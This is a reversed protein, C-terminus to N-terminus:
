CWPFFIWVNNGFAIYLITVIHYIPWETNKILYTWSLLWCQLISQIIEDQWRISYTEFLLNNLSLLNNFVKLSLLTTPKFCVGAGENKVPSTLANMIFKGNSPVPSCWESCAWGTESSWFDYTRGWIHVKSRPCICCHPQVQIVHCPSLMYPLYLFLYFVWFM